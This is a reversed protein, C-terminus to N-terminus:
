GVGYFRVEPFLKGCYYNNPICACMGVKDAAVHLNGARTIVDVGLLRLRRRLEGWIERLLRLLAPPWHRVAATM